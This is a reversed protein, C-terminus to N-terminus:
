GATRFEYRQIGVAVRQGTIRVVRGEAVLRLPITEDLLAPWAISMEITRGVSPPEDTDFQIGGSSFDVTLGTGSYLDRKRHIVKWRVDLVVRYRPNARRDGSKKTQRM